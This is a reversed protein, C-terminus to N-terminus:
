SKRGHFAQVKNGIGFTEKQDRGTQDNNSGPASRWRYRGFQGVFLEPAQGLVKGFLIPKETGVVKEGVFGAELVDNGFQQFRRFLSTNIKSDPRLLVKGVDRREFRRHREDDIDAM